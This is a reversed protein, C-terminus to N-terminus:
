KKEDDRLESESLGFSEDVEQNGCPEVHVMVDYVNDIRQRVAREVAIAIDHADAVSLKPDVEIDLDVDYMAAIKRIRARHPNSAGSVSRVADFISRYLGSDTTGDMLELNVDLFIGVATKMVWVGVLVAMIPDFIPMDLIFTFFLGVFVSASIVVDNRMNKGNAILLDSAYKRGVSFQSWALLLKGAVSIATVVLAMKEPMRAPVPDQIDHITTLVLQAGAFFIVFALLTTAMTEARGHGYPHEQDSPQIMIRSAVLAVVSIVVDTSSDIGDGIVALSGATFGVVIKLAALIGNGLLAVISAATVARSRENM